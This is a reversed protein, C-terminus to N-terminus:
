YIRMDSQQWLTNGIFDWKKELINANEGWWLVSTDTVVNNREFNRHIKTVVAESGDTATLNSGKKVATVGVLGTGAWLESISKGNFEQELLWESLLFSAEWTRLGTTGGSALLSLQELIYIEGLTPVTYTIITETPASRIPVSNRLLTKYRLLM